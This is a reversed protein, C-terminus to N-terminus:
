LVAVTATLLLGDTGGASLGAVALNNAVTFESVDRPTALRGAKNFVPWNAVRPSNTDSRTWDLGGDFTTLLYAVPSASAYSIYGVENTPFVIDWINGTGTGTFSKATWTEGGDITYLLNGANSGIWFRYKDLVAIAQVTGGASPTSTTTAFSAGRNVSKIV